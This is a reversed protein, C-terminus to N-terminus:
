AGGIKMSPASIAADPPNMDTATAIKMDTNRARSADSTSVMSGCTPCILFIDFVGSQKIWTADYQSLEILMIQSMVSRFM